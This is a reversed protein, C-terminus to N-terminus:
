IKNKKLRFYKRSYQYKSAYLNVISETNDISGDDIVHVKIAKKEYNLDIISDLCHQTENEANFSPIIITFSKM